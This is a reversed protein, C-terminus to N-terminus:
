AQYTIVKSLRVRSYASNSKETKSPFYGNQAFNTSFNQITLKFNLITRKKQKLGSYERQAFKTWFILIILKLQFKTGAIKTMM